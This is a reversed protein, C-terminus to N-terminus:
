KKRKTSQKNQKNNNKKKHKAKKTARKKTSITKPKATKKPQKTPQPEVIKKSPEIVIPENTQQSKIRKSRQIGKHLLYFNM